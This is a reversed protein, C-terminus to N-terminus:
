SATGTVTVTGDQNVTITLGAPIAPASNAVASNLIQSIALFLNHATGADTGLATFAQQVTLKHPNKYILNWLQQVGQKNVQFLRTVGASMATQTLIAPDTVPAAPTQILAM